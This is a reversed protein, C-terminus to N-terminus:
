NDDDEVVVDDDLDEHNPSDMGSVQLQTLRMEEIDSSTLESIFLNPLSEEEIPQNDMELTIRMLKQALTLSTTLAAIARAKYIPQTSLDKMLDALTVAILERVAKAQSLDDLLTAAIHAKIDNVFGGDSLLQERATQIAESTLGGKTAGVKKFHRQLTSPSINTKGAITALSYGGDRLLVAAKLEDTTKFRPNSIKIPMVLGRKM